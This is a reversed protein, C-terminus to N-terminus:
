TADSEGRSLYATVDARLARNKPKTRVAECCLEKELGSEVALRLVTHWRTPADVFGDELDGRNLGAREAIQYIAVPNSITRGLAHVLNSFQPSGPGRPNLQGVDNSPPETAPLSVLTPTIPMSMAAKPPSPPNEVLVGHGRNEARDGPSRVQLVAVLAALVLLGAGIGLLLWWDHAWAWSKPVAGPILSVVLSLLAALVVALPAWIAPWRRASL